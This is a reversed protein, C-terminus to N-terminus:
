NAKIQKLEFTFVLTSDKRLVCNSLKLFNIPVGYKKFSPSKSISELVMEKIEEIHKKIYDMRKESWEKVIYVDITIWDFTKTNSNEPDREFDPKAIKTIFRNLGTPLNEKLTTEQMLREFDEITDGEKLKSLAMRAITCNIDQFYKSTDKLTGTWKRYSNALETYMNKELYEYTWFDVKEKRLREKLKELTISCFVGEANFYYITSHAFKIVCNVLLNKGRM